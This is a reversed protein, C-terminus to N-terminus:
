YGRKEENIQCQKISRDIEAADSKIKQAIYSLQNGVEVFSQKDKAVISFYTRSQKGTWEQTINPVESLRKFLKNIENNYENCLNNLENGISDIEETKVYTIGM